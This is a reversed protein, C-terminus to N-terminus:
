FKLNTTLIQSKSEYNDSIMRFLLRELTGNKRAEALKLVLEAVTYFKMKYGVNCAMVGAAIAMHTKGVGGPWISGPQEEM